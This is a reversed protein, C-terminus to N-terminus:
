CGSKVYAKKAANRQEYPYPSILIKNGNQCLAKWTKKGVVGDKALGARGQLIQVSDKTVSDFKGTAKTPYWGSLIQIYKVCGGTEGKRITRDVCPRSAASSSVKMYTGAAAVGIVVVIIPILLHSIGKMDLKKM